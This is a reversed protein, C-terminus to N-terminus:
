GGPVVIGRRAHFRAFVEIPLRVDRQSAATDGSPNHLRVVGGTAAFVLV